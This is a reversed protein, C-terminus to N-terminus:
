ELPRSNSEHRPKPSTQEESAVYGVRTTGRPSGVRRQDSGIPQQGPWVVRTRRHDPPPGATTRRHNMTTLWRQGDSSVTSRRQGGNVPPGTTTRTVVRPDPPTIIPAHDSGIMPKASLLKWIGIHCRPIPPDHFTTTVTVLNLDGLWHNAIM